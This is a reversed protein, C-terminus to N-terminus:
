PHVERSSLAIFNRLLQGAHSGPRAELEILGTKQRHFTRSPFFDATAVLADQLELTDGNPTKTLTYTQTRNIFPQDLHLKRTEPDYSSNQLVLMSLVSGTTPDYWFSFVKGALLYVYQMAVTGQYKAASSYLGDMPTYMELGFHAEAAGYEHGFSAFLDRSAQKLPMWLTSPTPFGLVEVIGNHVTQIDITYPISQRM